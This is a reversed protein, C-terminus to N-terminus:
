QGGINEPGVPMEAGRERCRQDQNGDQAGAPEVQADLRRAGPLQLARLDLLGQGIQQPADRRESRVARSGIFPLTEGLLNRASVARHLPALAPQRQHM